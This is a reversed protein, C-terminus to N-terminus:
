SLISALMPLNINQPGDRLSVLQALGSLHIDNPPLSGYIDLWQLNRLPPEFPSNINKNRLLEDARTNALCGVSLIVADSVARTTDQIAQNVRKISEFEFRELVKRELTTHMNGHKSENHWRLQQRHFVASFLFSCLLTPEHWSLHLWSLIASNKYGKPSSPM